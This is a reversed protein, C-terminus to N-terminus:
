LYMGDRKRHRCAHTHTRHTQSLDIIPFALWKEKKLPRGVKTTKWDCEKHMVSHKNISWPNELPIGVLFRLYPFGNKRRKKVNWEKIFLQFSYFFACWTLFLFIYISLCPLCSPLRPPVNRNKDVGCEYNQHWKSIRRCVLPGCDAHKIIAYM